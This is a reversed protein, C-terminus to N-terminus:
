GPPWALQRGGLIHAHLYPVTQGGDEGTNMVTRYGGAELGCAEAAKAVGRLFGAAEDTTLSAICSVDRIAAKPIVLVHTPAVPTIDPFAIVFEDEYVAQVPIQGTAIKAFISTAVDHPTEAEM